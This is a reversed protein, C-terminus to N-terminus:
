WFNIIINICMLHRQTAVPVLNFIVSCSIMSVFRLKRKFGGPGKHAEDHRLGYHLMMRCAHSTQRLRRRHYFPELHLRANIVRQLDIMSARSLDMVGLRFQYWNASGSHIAPKNLRSCTFLQRSNFGTGGYPSDPSNVVVSDRGIFSLSFFSPV